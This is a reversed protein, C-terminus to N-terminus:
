RPERDREAQSEFQRHRHEREDAEAENSIFEHRPGPRVGDNQHKDEGDDDAGRGIHERHERHRQRQAEEVFTADPDGPEHFSFLPAGLDILAMPLETAPYSNKTLTTTSPRPAVPPDNRWTQM